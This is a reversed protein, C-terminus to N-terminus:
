TSESSLDLLRDFEASLEDSVADIEEGVILQHNRDIISRASGDELVYAAMNFPAIARNEPVIERLASLKESELNQYLRGAELLNNFSTLIYPSHTTIFFQLNAKSLNFIMAILNVVDRQTSPFLHAEPEEIYTAAGMPSIEQSLLHALIIVLPLSEQQGSSAKEIGVRRGDYHDIFGEYLHLFKEDLQGGLIKEIAEKVGRLNPRFFLLAQFFAPTSVAEHYLEGFEVLLPDLPLRSLGVGFVRDLNNSIQPFFSRSTPVFVQSQHKKIVQSKGSFRLASLLRNSDFIPNRCTTLDYNKEADIGISKCDDLYDKHIKTYVPSFELDVDDKRLRLEIYQENDGYRIYSSRAGWYEHPFYFKFIDCFVEKISRGSLTGSLTNAPFNKLFYLIKAVVSKGTGQAGILVNIQRLELELERIGAFNEIQIQEQRM